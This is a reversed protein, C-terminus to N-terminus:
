GIEILAKILGAKHTAWPPMDVNRIAAVVPAFDAGSANRRGFLTMEKRSLDLDMFAMPAEFVGALADRGRQRRAHLGGRRIAPLMSYWM